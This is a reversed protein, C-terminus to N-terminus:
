AGEEIRVLDTGALLEQENRLRQANFERQIRAQEEAIQQQTQLAAAIRSKNYTDNLARQYHWDILTQVEDRTFTAEADKMREVLEFTSAM